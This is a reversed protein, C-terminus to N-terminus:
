GPSTERQALANRYHAEQHARDFYNTQSSFAEGIKVYSGTVSNWIYWFTPDLAPHPTNIAVKWAGKECEPCSGINPAPILQKIPKTM